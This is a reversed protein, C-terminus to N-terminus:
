QAATPTAAPPAAVFPAAVWGDKGDATRVHIWTYGAAQQQDGQAQLRAGEPLVQLVKGNPQDRLKLGSRGTGAVALAAGPTAAPAPAPLPTNTARAVPSAPPTATALDTATSPAAALATVPPRASATVSPAPSAATSPAAGSSGCGALVLAVLLVSLRRPM